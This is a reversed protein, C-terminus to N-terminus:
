INLLGAGDVPSRVKTFAIFVSSTGDIDKTGASPDLMVTTTGYCGDGVSETLSM